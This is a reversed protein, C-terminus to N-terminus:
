EHDVKSTVVSADDGCHGGILHPLDIPNGGFFGTRVQKLHHLVGAPTHRRERGLEEAPFPPLRLDDDKGAGSAIATTPDACRSM